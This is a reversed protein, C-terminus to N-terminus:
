DCSGNVPGFSDITPNPTPPSTTFEPFAYSFELDYPEPAQVSATFEGMDVITIVAIHPPLLTRLARNYEPLLKKQDIGSVKVYVISLNGRFVNQILFDLPVITTPLNHAEPETDPASRVDLLNALTEDAAVGKDHMKKFFKAIDRDDGYLEFSIYTKGSSHNPNVVIPVSEAGFMLDGRYGGGLFGKGLAFGQLNAPTTGHRLDMWEYEDVFSDGKGLVDGVAVTITSAVPLHYVHQDTVVVNRLDDSFVSEVTETTTRVVDFGLTLAILRNIKFETTGSVICDMIVNLAEKSHYSSAQPGNFLFGFHRYLFNQDEHADYIWFTLERDTAVGNTYVVEIFFSSDDFPNSVFVVRSNDTDIYYDAGAMLVTEQGEVTNVIVTSDYVNTALAFGYVQDTTQGFYLSPQGFTLADGFKPLNAALLTIDSELVVVRRFKERHYVPISKRSISDRLELNNQYEQRANHLATEILAVVDGQGKYVSSWFSGLRNLLKQPDALYDPLPENTM